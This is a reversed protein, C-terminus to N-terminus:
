MYVFLAWSLLEHTCRAGVPLIIKSTPPWPLPIRLPPIGYVSIWISTHITYGLGRRQPLGGLVIVLPMAPQWTVRYPSHTYGWSDWEGLRWCGFLVAQAQVRGSYHSTCTYVKIESSHSVSLNCIANNTTMVKSWLHNLQKRHILINNHVINWSCNDMM